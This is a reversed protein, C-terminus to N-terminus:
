VAQSRREGGASQALVAAEYFLSDGTAAERCTLQFLHNREDFIIQVLTQRQSFNGSSCTDASRLTFQDKAGRHANGNIAVHNLPPHLTCLPQKALFVRIDALRGQLGSEGM